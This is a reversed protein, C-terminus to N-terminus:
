SEVGFMKKAKDISQKHKERLAKAANATQMRTYFKVAREKDFTALWASYLPDSFYDSREIIQIQDNELKCLQFEFGKYTKPVFCFFYIEGANNKVIAFIRNDVIFNYDDVIMATQVVARDYLFRAKNLKNILVVVCFALFLIIVLEM